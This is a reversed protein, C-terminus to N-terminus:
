HGPDAHNNEAWIAIAQALEQRREFWRAGVPRMKLAREDVDEGFTLRVDLHDHLYGTPLGPLVAEGWEILVMGGDDLLEDVGLDRFEGLQNLRYVDLHHLVLEGDGREAEYRQALTFTPSTIRGTVGMARGFGQVFATKGAGLDGSLLILDGPRSLTAV